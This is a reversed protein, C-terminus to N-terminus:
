NGNLVEKICGEIDQMEEELKGINYDILPLITAKTYHLVYTSSFSPSHIDLQEFWEHKDDRLKLLDDRKSECARLKTSLAAIQEARTM